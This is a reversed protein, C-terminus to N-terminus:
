DSCQIAINSRGVEKIKTLLQGIIHLIFGPIESLEDLLKQIVIIEWSKMEKWDITSRGLQKLLSKIMNHALDAEDNLDKNVLCNRTSLTTNILGLLRSRGYEGSSSVQQQLANILIKPDSTEHVSAEVVTIEVGEDTNLQKCFKMMPPQLQEKLKALKKELEVEWVELDSLEEHLQNMKRKNFELSVIAEKVEPSTKIKEDWEKQLAIEASM